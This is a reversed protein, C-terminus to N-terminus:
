NDCNHNIRNAMNRTCVKVGGDGDSEGNKTSKGIPLHTIEKSVEIKKSTYIKFESMM